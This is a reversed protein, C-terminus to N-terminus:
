FGFVGVHNVVTDIVTSLPVMPVLSMDAWVGGHKALLRLRILDSFSQMTMIGVDEKLGPLFHDLNDYTLLILQWDPNMEKWGRYALKNVNSGNQLLHGEGQFWAMWIVKPVFSASANTPRIADEPQRASSIRISVRSRSTANSNARHEPIAAARIRLRGSTHHGTHQRQGISVGGAWGGLERLSICLWAFFVPLFDM